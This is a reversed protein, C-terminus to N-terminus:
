ETGGLKPDPMYRAIKGTPSYMGEVNVEEVTDKGQGTERIGDSGTNWGKRWNSSYHLKVNPKGLREVLEEGPPVPEGNKVLLDMFGGPDEGRETWIFLEAIKVNLNWKLDNWVEGAPITFKARPIVCDNLAYKPTAYSFRRPEDTVDIIAKPGLFKGLFTRYEREWATQSTVIQLRPDGTLAVLANVPVVKDTGELASLDINLPHPQEEGSSGIRNKVMNWVPAFHLEKGTKKKGDVYLWAKLSSVIRGRVCPGM